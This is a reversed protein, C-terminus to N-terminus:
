IFWKVSAQDEPAEQESYSSNFSQSLDDCPQTAVQSNAETGYGSTDNINDGIIKSMACGDSVDTEAMKWVVKNERM